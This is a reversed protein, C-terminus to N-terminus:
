KFVLLTLTSRCYLSAIILCVEKNDLAAHRSAEKVGLLESARAFSWWSREQQFDWCMTQTHALLSTQSQINAFTLSPPSLTSYCLFANRLVRKIKYKSINRHNNIFELWYQHVPFKRWSLQFDCTSHLKLLHRSERSFLISISKMLSARCSSSSSCM